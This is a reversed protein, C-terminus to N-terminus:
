RIYVKSPKETWRERKRLMTHLKNCIGLTEYWYCLIWPFSLSMLVIINKKIENTHVMLIQFNSEVHEIIRSVWGFGFEYTYTALFWKTHWLLTITSLIQVIYCWTKISYEEKAMSSMVCWNLLILVFTCLHWQWKIQIINCNTPYAM